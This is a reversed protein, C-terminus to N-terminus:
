RESGGPPVVTSEPGTRKVEFTPSMIEIGAANFADQIAAHLDSRLRAMEIPESVHANLEYSVAFDGLQIQRVFPAPEPMIGPVRLAAGTLLQHVTRWPADYGIGVETHIVLEGVEALRSYNRVEGGAVVSNPLTVMVNKMTRIRTALMGLEVVEGTTEGVSIMDGVKLARSYMLVLGSMGNGVLGSSGLSIILGIFISVGKFADTDSGPLFPFMLVLAFVWLGIAALKRTPRAVEPHLWDIEVSGDEVREFFANAMRVVVRTVLIIVVVIALDPIVGLIERTAERAFNLTASGLQDSWPRTAPFQRFVFTLYAYAGLALAAWRAASLLLDVGRAVQSGRLVTFGPVGIDPVLRRVAPMVATRGARAAMRVGRAFALLLLTALLSYGVGILLRLPTRIRLERELAERLHRAAQEATEAATLGPTADAELVFFISQEGVRVVFLGQETAVWVSDAPSLRLTDVLARLRQNATAARQDPSFPGLVGRVKLLTDGRLHIPAAASPLPTPVPTTTDQALLSTGALFMAVSFAPWSFGRLWTM